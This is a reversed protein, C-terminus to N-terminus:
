VNIHLTVEMKKIMVNNKMRINAGGEIHFASGKSGFGSRYYREVAERFADYNFPGEYGKPWSVELPTTEFNGGVPQKVDTYLNKHITGGIQMDFFVRSVMHEDDSGYEQSDQVCKRFTVKAEM